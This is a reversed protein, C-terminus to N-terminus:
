GGITEELLGGLDRVAETLVEEPLMTFNLRMTGIGRNGSGTGADSDMPPYFFTGPVYAVNREVARDYLAVTDLGPPGEGWVFMGGEPRTTRLAEPFFRDIAALMAEQRPRYIDVIRPLHRALEGSELYLATLAQSLSSTHLDIGQKATVIWRTISPPAVVFGVRLGPAFVKSVTGLYVTHDPALSAIAPVPDGRYRLDNYPDDEILLADHEVIIRAIERRREATLTKGTPNQFTPTLYICAPSHDRIVEELSAPIIGEDDTEIAVYRPEYPNFASIAGLYTPTEVAVAAGPDVLVMGLASLAQQSGTTVTIRASDTRIGKTALYPVLNERLPGFGETLGYQLVTTGWRDVAETTLERFAEMPFAEPAPIGGALSRMGPQGTVKLIERIANAGM